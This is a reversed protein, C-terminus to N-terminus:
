GLLSQWLPTAQIALRPARRRRPSPRCRGDPCRPSTGRVTCVSNAERTSAPQGVGVLCAMLLILLSVRM